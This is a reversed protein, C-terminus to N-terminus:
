KRAELYLSSVGKYPSGDANIDLLYENFHPIHSSEFSMQEIHHFQAQHLLRVLSFSDYAWKHREGISTRIFIESAVSRPTLYYLVKLYISLLKNLIKDLTIKSAFPVSQTNKKLVNEGVRHEIFNALTINQTQKVNEFCAGMDGGSRMRVMQDFIELMLWDYEQILMQLNSDHGPEKTHGGGM